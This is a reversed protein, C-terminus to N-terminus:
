KEANARKPDAQTARLPVMIKPSFYNIGRTGEVVMM